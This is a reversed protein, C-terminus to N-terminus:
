YKVYPGANGAIWEIHDVDGTGVLEGGYTEGAPCPFGQGFTPFGAIWTAEGGLKAAMRGIHQDRLNGPPWSSTSASVPALSIFVDFQGTGSLRSSSDNPLNFGFSCTKGASAPPFTFTVLTTIDTTRGDKFIKGTYTSRQIAGSWVSYQSTYTPRLTTTDRPANTPLASSLTAISLALISTLHM